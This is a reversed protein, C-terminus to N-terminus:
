CISVNEIHVKSTYTCFLHIRTTINGESFPLVEHPSVFKHFTDEENPFQFLLSVRLCLAFYRVTQDKLLVSIQVVDLVSVLKKLQSNYLIIFHNM